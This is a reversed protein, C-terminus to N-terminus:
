AYGSRARSGNNIGLISARPDMGRLQIAGQSDKIFFLCNELVNGILLFETLLSM